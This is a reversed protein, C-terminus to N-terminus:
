LLNFYEAQEWESITNLYRDWEFQKLQVLYDVVEDSLATRYLASAGFGSIAEGLNAPLPAAGECYPTLTPEPARRGATIGDLGAILQAALALYPNAASDPARNEIRSAPNGPSFLARLMTGRNDRGWAIANPALQHPRYRKYSNV